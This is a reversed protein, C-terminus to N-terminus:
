SARGEVLAIEDDTLGYLQYVLKDIEMDVREVRQGLFSDQPTAALQSQLDLMQAVLAVMQDHAQVDAPNAPDITRIPLQSIYMPKYEFYGGQKTSAIGHIFYDCTTSNLLGLLYLDDTPIITTKDNSYINQTDYAYSATQVIAPIIIKPKEFEPYYDITDQIEYWQYNGVKRGEWEGVWNEPKPELKARFLNLHDRIAPYEDIDIGRRTFILYKDPHPQQYRKVDRGALFPKILDASKPDQAIMQLRMLPTIVFAENLGTKIGYYIKEEVYEGLRVGVAGLKQMFAQQQQNILSWSADELSVQEMRFRNLALYNSLSDFDLTTVNAAQFTETQPGKGAIVIIPYTTAQSFVPLDGFDIMEVLPQKKLWRRLPLGYKARMWKNAVIIGYYGGEKLLNISKEIFYVYLDATGAYTEYHQAVYRKFDAGLTEQRVYPPNGIVADFGGSAMVERFQVDWDFLRAKEAQPTHPTAYDTGILSNGCRINAELEPLIHERLLAQQEAMAGRKVELVKLLLNLKAVEVAQPDIDVGYIHALLIRKREELTLQYDNDLQLLQTKYKKPDQRYFELYWDLLYQYAAILFSGSGCAPDLIKLGVGVEGGRVRLPSKEEAGATIPPLLQGVTQAVIYDVIYKPTYYVGGARRVEPKEEVEVQNNQLSIVKGLFREYVNGLIDAPIVDFRYPQEYFGRLISQLLQDSFSIQSALTDAMGVRNRRPSFYFLGSNYRTDARRFTDLLALYIDSQRSKSLAELGWQDIGRDEAVRLFIIRDITRQVVQNMQEQTFSSAVKKDRQLNQALQVRWQDILNLFDDDVALPRPLRLATQKQKAQIYRELAGSEVAQRSFTDYLFDWVADEQYQDIHLYELRAQDPNDLENPKAHCYYVALEQFNTLISLPLKASWGYRRVQFAGARDGRLDRQAAKAEVFFRLDGQTYFGYDPRGGEGVRDEYVVQQRNRVDWGLAKFFDDIFLTRTRIEADRQPNAQEAQFNQVLQQVTQYAQRKPDSM